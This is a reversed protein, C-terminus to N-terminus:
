EKYELPKRILNLPLDGNHVEQFEKVVLEAHSRQHPIITTKNGSADKGVKREIGILDKMSYESKEGFTMKKKLM